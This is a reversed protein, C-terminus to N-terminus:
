SKTWAFSTTLGDIPQDTPPLKAPGADDCCTMAALESSLPVEQSGAMRANTCGPRGRVHPHPNSMREHHWGRDATSVRPVEDLVAPVATWSSSRGKAIAAWPIFIVAKVPEVCLQSGLGLALCGVDLLAKLACEVAFALLLAGRRAQERGSRAWRRQGVNRQTRGERIRPSEKGQRGIGRHGGCSSRGSAGVFRHWM